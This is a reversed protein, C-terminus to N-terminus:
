LFKMMAFDSFGVVIPGEPTYDHDWPLWEVLAAIEEVPVATGVHEGDDNVAMVFARGVVEWKASAEGRAHGFLFCAQHAKARGDEDILLDQENGSMDLEGLSLCELMRVVMPERELDGWEAPDTPFTSGDETEVPFGPGSLMKYKPQLGQEVETETVTRDFPNILIVRM